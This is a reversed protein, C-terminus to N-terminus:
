EFDSSAWRLVSQGLYADAMTLDLLHQLHIAGSGKGQTVLCSPVRAPANTKSSQHLRLGTVPASTDEEPGSPARQLRALALGTALDLASSDGLQSGGKGGERCSGCSVPPRAVKNSRAGRNAM